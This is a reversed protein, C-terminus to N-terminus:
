ANELFGNLLDRLNEVQNKTLQVFDGRLLTLQLCNGRRQGGWFSTAHVLQDAYSVKRTGKEFLEVEGQVCGVETAM